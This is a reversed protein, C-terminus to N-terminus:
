TPPGASSCDPRSLRVLAAAVWTAAFIMFASRFLWSANEALVVEKRILRLCIATPSCSQRDKVACCGRGSRARTAWSCRRSVLVLLMQAGQAILDFILVM